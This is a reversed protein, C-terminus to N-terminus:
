FQIDGFQKRLQAKQLPALDSYLREAKELQYTSYYLVFGKMKQESTLKDDCSIMLKDFTAAAFKPRGQEIYFDIMASYQQLSLNRKLEDIHDQSEKILEEDDTLNALLIMAKIHATENQCFDKRCLNDLQTLIEVAKSVDGQGYASKARLLMAQHNNEWNRLIKRGKKDALEYNGTSLDAHGSRILGERGGTVCGGSVAFLSLLAICILYKLKFM